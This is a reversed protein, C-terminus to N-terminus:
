IQAFMLIIKLNIGIGLFIGVIAETGCHLEIVYDKFTLGGEVQM